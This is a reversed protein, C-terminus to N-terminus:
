LLFHALCILVDVEYKVVQTPAFELWHTHRGHLEVIKGNELKSLSAYRCSCFKKFLFQLGKIFIELVFKQAVLSFAMKECGSVALSNKSM